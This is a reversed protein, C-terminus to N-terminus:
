AGVHTNSTSGKLTIIRFVARQSSILDQTRSRKIVTEGNAQVFVGALFRPVPRFYQKRLGIDRTVLFELSPPFTASLAM